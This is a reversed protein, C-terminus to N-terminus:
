FWQVLNNVIYTCGNVNLNQNRMNVLLSKLEVLAVGVARQWSDWIQVLVVFFVDIGCRKSM